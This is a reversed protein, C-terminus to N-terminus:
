RLTELRSRLLDTLLETQRATFGIEECRDPWEGASDVISDIMRATARERLGLRSAADIFHARSLGIAKGYLTLAMPDKWGTYPQTSDRLRAPTRRRSAPSAEGTSDTWWCPAVDKPTM